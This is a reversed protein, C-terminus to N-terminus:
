VEGRSLRYKLTRLIATGNSSLDRSKPWWNDPRQSGRAIPINLVRTDGEGKEGDVRGGSGSCNRVPAPRNYDQGRRLRFLLAFLHGPWADVRGAQRRCSTFLASCRWPFKSVFRQLSKEPSTETHRINGPRQLRQEITRPTCVHFTTNRKNEDLHSIYIPVHENREQVILFTASLYPNPSTVPNPAHQGRTATESPDVM